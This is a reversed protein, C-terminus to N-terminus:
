ACLLKSSSSFHHETVAPQPRPEWPAFWMVQASQAGLGGVCIEDRWVMIGTQEHKCKYNHNYKHQLPFHLSVDEGFPFLKNCLWCKQRSSPVGYSPSPRVVQHAALPRKISHCHHQWSFQPPESCLNWAEALPLHAYLDEHEHQTRSLVHIKAM